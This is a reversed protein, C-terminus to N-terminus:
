RPGTEDGGVAWDNASEYFEGHDGQVRARLRKALELMKAVSPRDPNTTYVAGASWDFWGKVAGGPGLWVAAHPGNEQDPRLNPDATVADNWEVATIEQRSSDKWDEARTLHLDYGM